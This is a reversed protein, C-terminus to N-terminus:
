SIGSQISAAATFKNKYSQVSVAYDHTFILNCIWSHIIEVPRNGFVYDWM